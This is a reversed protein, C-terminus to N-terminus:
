TPEDDAVQGPRRRKLDNEILRRVYAAFGRGGAKRLAKHYTSLPISFCGRWNLEVESLRAPGGRRKIPRKVPKAKPPPAPEIDLDDFEHHSM